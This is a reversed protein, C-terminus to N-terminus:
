TSNLVTCNDITNYCANHGSTPRTELRIGEVSCGTIISNTLSCNGSGYFNVGSEGGNVRIGDIYCNQSDFLRIGFDGSPPTLNVRSLNTGSERVDFVPATTGTINVVSVNEGIITLNAPGNVQISESYNGGYIFISDGDNANAEAAKIPDTASNFSEGARWWGTENVYITTQTYYDNTIDYTDILDLVTGKTSNLYIYATATTDNVAVYALTSNLDGWWRMNGVDVQTVNLMSDNMSYWHTHGCFYAEVSNNDFMSWLADRDSPFQNLSDNEHNHEPYAPEHGFAFIKKAPDLLALHEELWAFQPGNRPINGRTDERYEDLVVIYLNDYEAIYTTRLSDDYYYLTNPLSPYLNSINVEDGVDMEHNGVVWYTQLGPLEVDTYNEKNVLVYDMDGPLVMFDFQAKNPKIFQLTKNFESYYTRSDAGVVFCNCDTPCTFAAATSCFALVFAALIVISCWKKWLIRSAKMM